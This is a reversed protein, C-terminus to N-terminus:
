SRAARTCERARAGAAPGPRDALETEVGNVDGPWSTLGHEPNIEAKSRHDSPQPCGTGRQTTMKNFLGGPKKSFLRRDWKLASPGRTEQLSVRPGM